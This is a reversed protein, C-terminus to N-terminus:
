IVKHPPRLIRNLYWRVQFINWKNHKKLYMQWFNSNIYWLTTNSVRSIKIEIIFSLFIYEDNYTLKVIYILLFYLLKYEYQQNMFGTSIYKTPKKHSYKEIQWLEMSKMIDTHNIGRLKKITQFYIIVIYYSRPSILGTLNIGLM